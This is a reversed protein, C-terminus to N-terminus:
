GKQNFKRFKEQEMAYAAYRRVEAFLEDSIEDTGFLAFKVQEDTAVSLKTKSEQAVDDPMIEEVPVGFLEAIQGLRKKSPKTKGTNWQSYVSRTVGLKRELEAGTMQNKALLLNIKEISNM